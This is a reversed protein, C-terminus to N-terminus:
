LEARKAANLLSEDDLHAYRQTMELSSHGLLKSVEYLPVGAQVLRSAYDHRLDHFRFDVLQAQRVIRGWATKITVLRRSTQPSPFVLGSFHLVNGQRQKYVKLTAMATDNLPVQRTAGSKTNAAGVTIQRRALDVKDWTLSFIEGRRMGTSMALGVIAQMMNPLKPLVAMFRAREGQEHNEDKDRQGLYRVREDKETKLPGL